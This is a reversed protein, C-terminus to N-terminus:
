SVVNSSDGMWCHTAAYRAGDRTFDVVGHWIWLMQPCSSVMFTLPLVVGAYLLAFECAAPGRVSRRKM